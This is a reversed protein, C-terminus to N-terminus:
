NLIKNEKLIKIEKKIGKIIEDKTSFGLHNIYYSIIITMLETKTFKIMSEIGIISTYENLRTKM